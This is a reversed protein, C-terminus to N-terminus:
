NKDVKRAAALRGQDPRFEVIGYEFPM